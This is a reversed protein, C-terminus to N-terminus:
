LLHKGNWNLIQAAEDVHVFDVSCALADLPTRYHREENMLKGVTLFFVLPESKTQAVLDEWVSLDKMALTVTKVGLGQFKLTDADTSCIVVLRSRLWEM